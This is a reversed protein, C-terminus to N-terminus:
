PRRFRYTVGAELRLDNQHNGADNPLTSRAYSAGIARVGFRRGPFLNLGGGFQMAFANSSASIRAGRPYLGDFGRVEGFLAQTFLEAHRHLAIDYRPGAELAITSVSVGSAIDATHEGDFDVAVGLGHFFLVAADVAGGRLWFCACSEPAVNAREAAYTVAFETTLPHVDPIIMSDQAWAVSCAPFLLVLGARVLARVSVTIKRRNLILM